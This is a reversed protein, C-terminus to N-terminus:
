IFLSVLKLSAFPNSFNWAINNQLSLSELSLQWDKESLSIKYSNVFNPSFEITNFDHFIAEEFNQTSIIKKIEQQKFISNFWMHLTNTIYKDTTIHSNRTQFDELVEEFSQNPNLTMREITFKKLEDIIYLERDKEPVFKLTNKM